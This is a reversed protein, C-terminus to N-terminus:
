RVPRLFPLPPLNTKRRGLVRAALGLRIRFISTISSIPRQGVPLNRSGLILQGRQLWSGAEGVLASM